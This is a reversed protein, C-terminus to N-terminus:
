CEHFYKGQTEINQGNRNLRDWLKKRCESYQNEASDMPTGPKERYETEQPVSGVVM